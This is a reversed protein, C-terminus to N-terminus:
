RHYILYKREVRRKRPHQQEYMRLIYIIPFIPIMRIMALELLNHNSSQSWELYHMTYQCKRISPICWMTIRIGHIELVATQLPFAVFDMILDIIKIMLHNLDM